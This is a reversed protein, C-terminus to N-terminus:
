SAFRHKLAASSITLRSEITISLVSCILFITKGARSIEDNMQQDGNDFRTLRAQLRAKGQIEHTFSRRLVSSFSFALFLLEISEVSIM